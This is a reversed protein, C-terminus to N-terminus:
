NGPTPRDCSGAWIIKGSDERDSAKTFNANYYYSDALNQLVEQNREKTEYLDAAEKYARMEFLKNVRKLNSDQGIAMGSVLLLGALIYLYNKM